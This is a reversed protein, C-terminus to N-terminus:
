IPCTSIASLNINPDDCITHTMLDTVPTASGTNKRTLINNPKDLVVVTVLYNVAILM